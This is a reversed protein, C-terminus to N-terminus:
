PAPVIIIARAFPPFLPQICTRHHPWTSLHASFCAAALSLRSAFCRSFCCIFDALWWVAGDASSRALHLGRKDTVKSDDQHEYALAGAPILAMM